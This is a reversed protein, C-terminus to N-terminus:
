RLRNDSSNAQTARCAKMAQMGTEAEARTKFYIKDDVTRAASSPLQDVIACRNTVTDLVVHYHTEAAAQASSATAACALACLSLKKM